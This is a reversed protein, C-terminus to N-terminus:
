AQLAAPAAILKHEAVNAWCGQDICNRLYSIRTVESHRTPGCAVTPRVSRMKVRTSLWSAAATPREWNMISRQWTAEM